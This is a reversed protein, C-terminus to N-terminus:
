KSHRRYQWTLGKMEESWGWTRNSVPPRTDDDAAEVVDEPHVEQWLPLAVLDASFDGVNVIVSGIRMAQNSDGVGFDGLPIFLM